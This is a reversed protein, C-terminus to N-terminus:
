PIVKIYKEQLEDCLVCKEKILKRCNEITEFAFKATNEKEQLILYAAYQLNLDYNEDENKIQKSAQEIYYQTLSFLNDMFKVHAYLRLIEFNNPELQKAKEIWEDAKRLNNQKLYFNSMELYDSPNKFTEKTKEIKELLTKEFNLNDKKYYYLSTLMGYMGETNFDKTRKSDPFISIAVKANAIAKEDQGLLFNLICLSKNASFPNLKKTKLLTTFELQLERIRKLEEPKFNMILRNMNKKDQEFQSIRVLLGFVESMKKTNQIQTNDKYLDAYYFISKYDLLETYSKKQNESKKSPDMITNLNEFVLSLFYFTFPLSPNKSKKVIADSCIKRAEVFKGKQILFIPYFVISLSDNPNIRLSKEIDLLGDEQELNFKLLGRFSYYFASDKKIMVKHSLNDLSKKFYKKSLIKDGNNEYYTAINQLNLPNITDKALIKKLKELYEPNYKIQNAIDSFKTTADFNSVGYEIQGKWDFIQQTLGLFEKRDKPKLKQKFEYTQSFFQNSILLVIIFIYKRTM